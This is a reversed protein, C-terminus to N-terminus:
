VIIKISLAQFFLFVVGARDSVFMAIHFMCWSHPHVRWLGQFYAKGLPIKTVM